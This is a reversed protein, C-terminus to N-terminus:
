ASLRRLAQAGSSKRRAAPPAATFVYEHQADRLILQPQGEVKAVLFELGVLGPAATIFSVTGDANKRSVMETNLEKFGFFVRKGERRVNITGLEPSVYRAALQAVVAPEPPVTLTERDKRAATRRVEAAIRLQEDALPKGDFVLEMLKRFFAGHLRSGSDANTLITAGIGLGPLWMMNSKYGAMSGGHDIWTIGLSTDVLLGMGYSVDESVLVQPERRALLNRESVLPKGAETRGLALEMMVFRSFDHASIWVGGAPRAPIVKPNISM